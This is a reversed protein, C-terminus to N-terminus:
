RRTARADAEAAEDEAEQERDDAVRPRTADALRPRTEDALRPRTEDAVRPGTEETVRTRTRRRERKAHKAALRAVRRADPFLAARAHFLLGLGWGLAPWVVWMYASSTLLNVALLFALVVFYSFAHNFLARRLRERAGREDAEGARAEAIERAAADIAEASLGIERATEVLERHTTLDRQQRELARALIANVEDRTYSRDDGAM